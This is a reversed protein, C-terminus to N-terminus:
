IDLMQSTDGGQMSRGWAALEAATTGRPLLDDDPAGGTGGRSWQFAVWASGRLAQTTATQSTGVLAYEGGGYFRYARRLGLVVGIARYYELAETQDKSGSTREAEPVVTLTM